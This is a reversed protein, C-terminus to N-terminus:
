EPVPRLDRWRFDQREDDDFEVRYLVDDRDDGTLVGADDEIKAVIIGCRGHYQEFDPDAKNPIDVRVETGQEVRM